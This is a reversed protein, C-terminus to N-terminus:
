ISEINSNSTVITEGTDLKVKVNWNLYHQDEYDKTINLITGPGFNRVRAKTGFAQKNIEM